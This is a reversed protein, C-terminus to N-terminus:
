FEFDAEERQNIELSLKEYDINNLAIICDEVSKAESFVDDLIENVDSTYLFHYFCYDYYNDIEKLQDRLFDGTKFPRNLCLLKLDSILKKIAQTSLLIATDLSSFIFPTFYIYSKGLSVKAKIKYTAENPDEEHILVKVEVPVNLLSEIKNKVSSTFFHDCLRADSM